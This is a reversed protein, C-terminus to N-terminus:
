MRAKGHFSLGNLQSRGSRNNSVFYYIKKCVDKLYIIDNCYAPVLILRTRCKKKYSLSQYTEQQLIGLVIVKGWLVGKKQQPLTLSYNEM